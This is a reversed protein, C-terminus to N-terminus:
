QRPMILAMTYSGGYAEILAAVDQPQLAMIDQTSAHGVRPTYGMIHRTVIQTMLTTPEALSLSNEALAHHHAMGFGHPTVVDNFATHIAARIQSAAQGMGEPRVRCYVYLYGAGYGQWPVTHIESIYPIGRYDRWTTHTEELARQVAAALVHGAYPPPNTSTFAPLRMGWIAYGDSLDSAYVHTVHGTPAPSPTFQPRMYPPTTHLAVRPRRRIFADSKEQERFRRLSREVGAVVESEDIAGSIFITTNRPTIFDAHERSLDDATIRLLSGRTGFRPHAYPAEQYLLPVIVSAVLEPVNTAVAEILLRHRARIPACAEETLRPSTWADSMVRIADPTHAPSVTGKLMIKEQTSHGSLQLGYRACQARFRAADHSMTAQTMASSLLSFIGPMQPTECWSGGIAAYMVHVVPAHPDHRLLLTVGNPLVRRFVPYSEADILAREAAAIRQEQSVEVAFEARPLVRTLAINEPACMQASMETIDSPTVNEWAAYRRYVWTPTFLSVAGAGIMEALRDPRSAHARFQTVLALRAADVETRRWSRQAYGSLWEQLTATVKEIDALPATFYLQLAGKQGPVTEHTIDGVHATPSVSRVASQMDSKEARLAAILVDAAAHAPTGKMATASRLAAHGRTVPGYGDASVFPSVGGPYSQPLQEAGVAHGSASPVVAAVDRIIAAPDVAGVVIVTTMHPVCTQRHYAVADRRRLTLFFPHLGEAPFQAPTGAYQTRHVIEKVRRAPDAGKILMEYSVTNRIHRWRHADFRENYVSSLLLQLAASTSDRPVHAYFCLANYETEAGFVGAYVRNTDARVTDDITASIMRQVMHAVGAGQREGEAYVGGRVYVRIATSPAFPMDVCHVTVGADTVFTQVPYLPLTDHASICATYICACIFIRCVRRM